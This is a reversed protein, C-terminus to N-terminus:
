WLTSPVQSFVPDAQKNKSPCDCNRSTHHEFL